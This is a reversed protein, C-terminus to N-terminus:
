KIGLHMKMLTAYSFGCLRVFVADIICREHEDAEKYLDFIRDVESNEDTMFSEFFEDNVDVEDFGELIEKTQEDQFARAWSAIERKEM